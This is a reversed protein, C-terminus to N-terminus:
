LSLQPEKSIVFNATEYRLELVRTMRFVKRMSNLIAFNDILLTDVGRLQWACGFIHHLYNSQFTFNTGGQTLKYLHAYSTWAAKETLGDSSPFYHSEIHRFVLNGVM